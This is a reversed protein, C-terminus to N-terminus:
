AVGPQFDRYSEQRRAVFEPLSIGEEACHAVADKIFVRTHQLARYAEIAELHENTYYAAPGRGGKPPGLVGRRRLEYISTRSLGFRERLEDITLGL